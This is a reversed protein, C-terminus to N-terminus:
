NNHIKNLPSNLCYFPKKLLTSKGTNYMIDTDDLYKLIGGAETLVLEPAAIDWENIDGFRYYIDAVGEAILCPKISSGIYLRNKNLVDKNRAIIDKDEQDIRTSTMTMILDKTKSSVQLRINKKNRHDLFAGKGKYAYYLKDFYPNYVASALPRHKYILAINVSFGVRGEIFEKTGDLPDIVFCYNNKLRIEHKDKSEESLIPIQPYKALLSGSIIENAKKDAETVPSQDKKTFIKYDTRHYKLIEIGTQKAISKLDQLLNEM